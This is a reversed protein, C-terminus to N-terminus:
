CFCFPTKLEQSRITLSLNIMWKLHMCRQLGSHPATLFEHCELALDLARSRSRLRLWGLLGWLSPHYGGPLIPPPITIYVFLFRLSYMSQSFWYYNEWVSVARLYLWIQKSSLIALIHQQLRAFASFKWILIQPWGRHPASEKIRLLLYSSNKDLLYLQSLKQICLFLFMYSIANKCLQDSNHTNHKERGRNQMFMHSPSCWTDRGNESDFWQGNSNNQASAAPDDM